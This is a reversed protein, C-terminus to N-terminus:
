QQHVLERRGHRQLVGYARGPGGGGAHRDASASWPGVGVSNVARVGAQYATGNTLSTITAAVTSSSGM